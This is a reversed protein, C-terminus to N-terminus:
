PQTAGDPVRRYAVEKTVHNAGDRLSPITVDLAVSAGATGAAARPAPDRDVLTQLAGPPLANDNWLVGHRGAAITVVPLRRGSSAVAIIIGPSVEVLPHQLQEILKIL